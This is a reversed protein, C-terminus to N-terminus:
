AHRLLAMGAVGAVGLSVGAWARKRPRDGDFAWALPIVLLPVLAVVAQVVGVKVEALALQYCAVGVTPGVVATFALWPALARWRIPQGTGSTLPFWAICLALGGLNRLLAADIGGIPAGAASGAAFGQRSMVASIALGVASLVGLGCGLLFSRDGRLLHRDPALALTVGGLIVAICLGESLHLPTGLWAWELAAGLPAGLCHTLLAPLRAGIRAYASFLAIDGLGLGIAGSAVFWWAAQHWDPWGSRLLIWGSLLGVALILRALNGRAGGLHKATRASAISSASWLLATLFAFLM